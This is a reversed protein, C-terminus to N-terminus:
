SCHVQDHPEELCLEDYTDLLVTLTKKHDTQTVEGTVYRVTLMHIVNALEAMEMELSINM